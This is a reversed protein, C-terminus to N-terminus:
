RCAISGRPSRREQPMSGCELLGVLLDGLFAEWAPYVLRASDLVHGPDLGLWELLTELAALGFGLFGRIPLCTGQRGALISGALKPVALLIGQRCEIAIIPVDNSLHPSGPWTTVWRELVVEIPTKGLM